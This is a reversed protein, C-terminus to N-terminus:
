QKAPHNGVCRENRNGALRHHPKPAEDDHLFDKLAANRIRLADSRREQFLHIEHAVPSPMVACENAEESIRFAPLRCGFVVPEDIDRSKKNPPVPVPCRWGFTLVVGIYYGTDLHSRELAAPVEQRQVPRLFQLIEDDAKGSAFRRSNMKAPAQPFEDLAHALDFLDRSKDRQLLARLKTAIPGNSTRALDIDESYRMPVVFHLKNLATGGRFRLEASLLPASFIAVIARSIILDQEVQRQEAWPVNNGWAIINQAPIM